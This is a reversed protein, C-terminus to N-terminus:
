LSRARWPHLVRYLADIRDAALGSATIPQSHRATFEGPKNPNEVELGGADDQMLMTISGFDSHAGIRAIEDNDLRDM